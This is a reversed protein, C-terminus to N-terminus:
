PWKPITMDNKRLIREPIANLIIGPYSELETKTAFIIAHLEKAEDANSAYTVAIVTEVHSGIKGKNLVRTRIHTTLLDLIGDASVNKSYVSCAGADTLTVLYSTNGGRVYWVKGTQEGLIVEAQHKPVREAKMNNLLTPLESYKNINMLCFWEFAGYAEDEPPGSFSKDVHHLTFLACLVLTRASIM